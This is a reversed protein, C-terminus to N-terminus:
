FGFCDATTCVKCLLTYYTNENLYFVWNREAIGLKECNTLKRMYVMSKRVLGITYM